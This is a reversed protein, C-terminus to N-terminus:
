NEFDDWVTRKAPEPDGDGGGGFIPNGNEDVIQYDSQQEMFQNSANAQLIKIKPNSYTKM